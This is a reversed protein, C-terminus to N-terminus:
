SAAQWREPEGELRRVRGARQLHTLYCLTEALWWAGTAATLETDYVEPIIEYATRPEGGGLAREVRDLRDAVLKENARVHARV